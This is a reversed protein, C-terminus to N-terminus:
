IKAHRRTRVVLVIVVVTVRMLVRVQRRVPGDRAERQVGVAVWMLTMRGTLGAGRRRCRM